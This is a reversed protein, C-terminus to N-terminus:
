CYCFCLSQSGRGKRQWRETLTQQECVSTEEEEQQETEVIEDKFIDDREIYLLLSHEFEEATETLTQYIDTEM